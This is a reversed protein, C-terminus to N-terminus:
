NAPYLVGDIFKAKGAKIQEFRQFDHAMGIGYIQGKDFIKVLNEPTYIKDIEFEISNDDSNVHLVKNEREVIFYVSEMGGREYKKIIKDGEIKEYKKSSYKQELYNEYEKLGNM